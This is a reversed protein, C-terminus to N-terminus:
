KIILHALWAARQRGAARLAAAQLIQKRKHEPFQGYMQQIQSILDAALKNLQTPAARVDRINREASAQRGANVVDKIFSDREGYRKIANATRGAIHKGAGKLFDAFGEDIRGGHVVQLFSNFVFEADGRANQRMKPKTTTRFADPTSATSSPSSAPTPAPTSAQPADTPTRSAAAARIAQDRKVLVTYLKRLLSTFDGIASEEKGAAITSGVAQGIRSQQIQRGAERGAGRVFDLAGEQIFGKFMTM